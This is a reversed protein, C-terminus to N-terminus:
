LLGCQVVATQTHAPLLLIHVPLLV